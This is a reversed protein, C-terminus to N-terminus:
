AKKLVYGYRPFHVNVRGVEEGILALVVRNPDITVVKGVVSEAGSADPTVSVTDGVVIGTPDAGASASDVPAPEAARAIALASKIDLEEREGHGVAAVREMWGAIAPFEAAVWAKAPPVGALAWLPHYVGFDAFSVQEGGIYAAKSLADNLLGLAATLQTKRHPVEAKLQARDMRAMGMMGARDQLFADPLVDAMVSLLYRVCVMFFHQDVWGVIVEGWPSGGAPSLTPSPSRREIEAAILSTDCYVDAGVQLVPIRRYGGTLPVLGPKPMIVPQIVSKWALKKLGFVLRIKEAYPSQDYHHLIM